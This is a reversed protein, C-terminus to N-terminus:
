SPFGNERPPSAWDVTSLLVGRGRALARRARSAAGGSSGGFLEESDDLLLLARRANSELEPAVFVEESDERPSFLLGGRPPPDEDAASHDETVRPLLRTAPATNDGRSASSSTATPGVGSRPDGSSSSSPTPAGGLLRGGYRELFPDIKHPLDAAAKRRDHTGESPGSFAREALSQLSSHSLLLFEM